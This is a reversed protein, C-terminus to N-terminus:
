EERATISLGRKDTYDQEIIEEKEEDTLYKDLDGLKLQALKYFTENGLIQQAKKIDTLRRQKRCASIQAVFKNTVISFKEAQDRGPTVAELVESELGSFEKMLPDLQAKLETIQGLLSGMTNIKAHILKQEKAQAAKTKASAKSKTVKVPM